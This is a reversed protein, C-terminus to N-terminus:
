NTENRNVVEEILDFYNEFTKRCCDPNKIRINGTRLGILTFAMAMRHDEYTEVLAKRIEGPEIVIGDEQPLEECRIGMRGLEARIARIRDSEQFRIHGINLIRTPTKAFPALAAMTMTQDSFEKMDIVLGPYESIESGSLCIGETRDELKCGLRRLAEVFKIDGQLSDLHVDKVIVDTKLLPAMAYFYCAGSVDPEIQYEKLGFNGAHRVTCCNESWDVELGFQRMMAVTMKIYAGRARGGSLIVNLGNELLVGSMLLASAFQSSLGTDIEVERLSFGESRMRFPFHDEEGLFDFTVGGKKLLSLLPEMPRRCMQPSANLEYEGGALALFVTLFRAATGASRVNIQARANPVSGGEGQIAVDKTKEDAEVFFGLKELSDIFARSDESFLVGHLVCKKGSLAALLLARNTISKSGPVEVEIKETADIKKVSYIDETILDIIKEPREVYVKSGAADLEKRNRFGWTVTVCEMGAGAATAIDVESDGVYVARERSVGLQRLAEFVMDPAPKRRMNERAGVAVRVFDKFYMENLKQVAGHPKNSVIAIKIGRDTLDELLSTIGPYLGTKVNCHAGYHEGFAEYVQRIKEEQTGCPVAREILKQAGNGVFRRIEEYGRKEMGYKSLAFNVSDMLDELTNLLTGDLDFVVAEYQNIRTRGM